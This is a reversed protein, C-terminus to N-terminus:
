AVLVLSWTDSSFLGVLISAYRLSAITDPYVALQRTMAEMKRQSEDAEVAALALNKQLSVIQTDLEASETVVQRVLAEMKQQAAKCDNDLRAALAMLETIQTECPAHAVKVAELERRLEAVLADRAELAAACPQHAKKLGALEQLLKAVGTLTSVELKKDEVECFAAFEEASIRGDKNHDMAAFLELAAHHSWGMEGLKRALEEKSLEGDGDTDMSAFDLGAAGLKDRAPAPMPLAGAGRMPPAGAGLKVRGGRGTGLKIRTQLHTELEMREGEARAASAELNGADLLLADKTEKLQRRLAAILRPCKDHEAKLEDLQTQVHTRAVREKSLATKLDALDVELKTQNELKEALERDLSAAREQLEKICTMQADCPAHSTVHAGTNSLDFVESTDTLALRGLKQLLSKLLLDSQRQMQQVNQAVRADHKHSGAAMKTWLEIIEDSMKDANDTTAGWAWHTKYTSTDKIKSRFIALNLM